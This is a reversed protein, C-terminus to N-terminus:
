DPSRGLREHRHHRVPTVRGPIAALAHRLVARVVRVGDGGGRGDGRELQHGVAAQVSAGVLRTVLEACPQGVRHLADAHRAEAEALCGDEVHGELALGPQGAEVARLLAYLAVVTKGSGVDGQLLRQMPVAQALDRDIEAIAHEQHETLRFPLAERHRAIAANVRTLRGIMREVTPAKNLGARHTPM